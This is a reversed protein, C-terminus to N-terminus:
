KFFFLVAHRGAILGHFITINKLRAMLVREQAIELSPLKIDVLTFHCNPYKHALPLTVYGSGSAFEVIRDGSRRCEM